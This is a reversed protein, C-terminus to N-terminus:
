DIGFRTLIEKILQELNNENALASLAQFSELLGFRNRNTGEWFIPAIKIGKAIAYGVEQNGFPSMIYNDTCVALLHSSLDLQALIKRRWEESLGIDRYAVFVAETELSSDKLILEQIKCAIKVDNQQYSIFLQTRKSNNTQAAYYEDFLNQNVDSVKQLVNNIRNIQEQYFSMNNNEQIFEMQIKYIKLASMAINMVFYYQSKSDFIFFTSTQRSKMIEEARNLQEIISDRDDLIPKQLTKDLPDAIKGYFTQILSKVNNIASLMVNLEIPFRVIEPYSM